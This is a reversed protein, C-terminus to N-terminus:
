LEGNFAKKMISNFNNKLKELSKEMEDKLKDVKSVFDDFKNQLEFPPYPM